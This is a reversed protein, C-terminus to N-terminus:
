VCLCSILRMLICVNKSNYNSTRCNAQVGRTNKSIYFLQIWVASALTCEGSKVTIEYRFTEFCYLYALISIINFILFPWTGQVKKPWIHTYWVFITPMILMKNGKFDAKLKWSLFKVLYKWNQEHSQDKIIFWIVASMAFSLSLDLTFVLKVTCIM